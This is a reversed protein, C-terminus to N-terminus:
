RFGYAIGVGVRFAVVPPEFTPRGEVLFPVRVLPAVAGIDLELDWRPTLAFAVASKGGAGVWPRDGAKSVALDFSQGLLAGLEAAVCTRVSWRGRSSALCLDLASSAWTFAVSGTSVDRQPSRALAIGLRALPVSRADRRAVEMGFTLQPALDDATGSVMGARSWARWRAPIPAPAVAPSTPGRPPAPAPSRDPLPPPPAPPPEHEGADQATTWALDLALALFAALAAAVDACSEGHIEREGAVADDSAILLTGSARSADSAEHAIRVRIEGRAVASSPPWHTVRARVEGLFSERDPCGAPVEYSLNLSPTSEAYAVSSWAVGVMWVAAGCVHRLQRGELVM